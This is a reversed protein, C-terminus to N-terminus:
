TLRYGAACSTCQKSNTHSCTLCPYDCEPACAMDEVDHGTIYYGPYCASCVGTVTCM